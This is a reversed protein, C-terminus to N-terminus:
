LETSPALTGESNRAGLALREEEVEWTPSYPAVTKAEASCRTASIFLMGTRGRRRGRRPSNLRAPWATSLTTSASCLQSCPLMWWRMAYRRPSLASGAAVWRKSRNMIARYQVSSNASNAHAANTTALLAGSLYFWAEPAFTRAMIALIPGDGGCLPVDHLGLAFALALVADCAADGAADVAADAAAHACGEALLGVVDGVADLGILALVVELLWPLQGPPEAVARAARGRAPTTNSM